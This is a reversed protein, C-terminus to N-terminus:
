IKLSEKKHYDSVITEKKLRCDRRVIDILRVLSGGSFTM